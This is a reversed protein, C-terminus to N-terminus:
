VDIVIDHILSLKMIGGEVLYADHNIDGLREIIKLHTSITM